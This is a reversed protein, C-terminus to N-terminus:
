RNFDKMNTRSQYIGSSNLISHIKKVMEVKLGYIESLSCASKGSRIFEFFLLLMSRSPTEVPIPYIWGYKQIKTVEEFKHSYYFNPILDNGTVSRGTPAQGQDTISNTRFFTVGFFPVTTGTGMQIHQHVLSEKARLYPNDETKGLPISISFNPMIGWDGKWFIKQLMVKPDGLGLLQEDRHHIGAYPPEYSSGDELYYSIGIKRM